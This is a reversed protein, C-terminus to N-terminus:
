IHILSLGWLDAKRRAISVLKQLHPAFLSFDSKQRAEAWAAKGHACIESEEIVLKQPLKVARDYDRRLEKLNAAAKANRPKESEAKELLKRFVTGTALAHAKGNLYSMQRARFALAKAPMYTEQDWSLTAETSSLLSVEQVLAVLQDYATAPM